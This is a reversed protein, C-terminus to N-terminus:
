KELAVIAAEFQGIYTNLDVGAREVIGASLMEKEIGTYSKVVALFARAAEKNEATVQSPTAFKGYGIYDGLGQLEAIKMLSRVWWDELTQDYNFGITDDTLIWKTKEPLANLEVYANTIETQVGRLFAIHQAKSADDNSWTKQLNEYQTMLQKVQREMNVAQTEAVKVEAVITNFSAIITQTNATQIYAPLLQNLQDAYKLSQYASTDQGHAALYAVIVSATDGKTALSAKVQDVFTTDVKGNVYTVGDYVGNALAGNYYHLGKFVKLNKALKGNYFLQKTRSVTKYGKKLTANYYLKVNKGSGVVAYGKNLKGNKYLKGDYVRYGKVVKKTKVQVLKGQENLTVTSAAQAITPLVLSMTIVGSLTAGKWRKM